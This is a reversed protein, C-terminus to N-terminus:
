ADKQSDTMLKGFVSEIQVAAESEAGGVIAAYHKQLMSLDTHGIRASLTRLDVGSAAAHTAHTRRLDHVTVELGALKRAQEWKRRLATETIAFVRDDGELKREKQRELIEKMTSTCIVM